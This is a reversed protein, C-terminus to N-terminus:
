HVKTWIKLHQKVDKVIPGVQQIARRVEDRSVRLKNAWYDLEHNQEVKIRVDDPKGAQKLDDAM